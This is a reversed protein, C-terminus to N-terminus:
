EFVERRERAHVVDRNYVVVGPGRREIGITPLKEVADESACIQKRREFRHM